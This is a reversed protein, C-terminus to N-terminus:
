YRASRRCRGASGRRINRRLAGRRIMFDKKALLFDRVDAQRREVYEVLFIGDLRREALFDSRPPASATAAAATAAPAAISAAPATATAAPAAARGPAATAPTLDLLNFRRLGVRTVPGPRALDPGGTKNLISTIRRYRQRQWQLQAAAPM